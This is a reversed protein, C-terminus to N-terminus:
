AFQASLQGYLATDNGANVSGQTLLYNWGNTGAEIQLVVPNNSDVSPNQIFVPVL